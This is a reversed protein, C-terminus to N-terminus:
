GATLSSSDAPRDPMDVDPLADADEEAAEAAEAPETSGDTRRLDAAMERSKDVVRQGVDATVDAAKAAFPAAAEAARQALESAKAAVDRIAPGAQTAIDDIMAQLQRVWDARTAPEPPRTGGADTASGSPADGTHIGDGAAQDRTEDNM